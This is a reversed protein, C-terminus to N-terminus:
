WYILLFLLFFYGLIGITVNGLPDPSFINSKMSETGHLTIDRSLVKGFFIKFIAFSFM